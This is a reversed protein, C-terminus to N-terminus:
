GVFGAPPRILLIDGPFVTKEPPNKYLLFLNLVFSLAWCLVSESKNRSQLGNISWSTAPNATWCM